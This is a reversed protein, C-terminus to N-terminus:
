RFEGTLLWFLLTQAPPLFASTLSFDRQAHSTQAAHSPRPQRTSQHCPVVGSQQRNVLASFHIRCVVNATEKGTKDAVASSQQGTSVDELPWCVCSTGRLVPELGVAWIENGFAELNVQSSGRPNDHRSCHQLGIM